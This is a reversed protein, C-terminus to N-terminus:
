RAGTIANALRRAIWEVCVSGVGNGCLRYRATDSLEYVTGDEKRGYRTWEDPWSMLRECELPTLRRPRGTNKAVADYMSLSQHNGTHKGFMTTDIMPAVDVAWLRDAGEHTLAHTIDGTTCVCGMGDTTRGIAPAVDGSIPTQTHHFALVGNRDGGSKGRAASPGHTDDSANLENDWAIIRSADRDLTPSEASPQSKNAPSTVQATHIAM